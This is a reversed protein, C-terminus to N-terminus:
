GILNTPGAAKAWLQRQGAQNYSALVGQFMATLSVVEAKTLAMAGSLGSGDTVLDGDQLAALIAQVQAYQSNLADAHNNTRAQEGCWARAMRVYDALVAQQESTLDGFAM